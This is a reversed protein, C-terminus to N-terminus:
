FTMGDWGPTVMTKIFSYVGTGIDMWLVIILGHLAERAGGEKMLDM